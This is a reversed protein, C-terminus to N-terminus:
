GQKWEDGPLIDDAPPEYEPYTPAEGKSVMRDYETKDILIACPAGPVPLIGFHVILEIQREGRKCTAGCVPMNDCEAPLKNLLDKLQHVLM